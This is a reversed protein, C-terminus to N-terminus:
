VILQNYPLHSVEAKYSYSSETDDGKVTELYKFALDMLGGKCGHNGEKATYIYRNYNYHHVSWEILRNCTYMVHMCYVAYLMRTYLTQCTIYESSCDMLQQESLSVLNKTNMAHQGELSGTASFSWCSGCRGQINSPCGFLWLSLTAPIYILQLLLTWNIIM